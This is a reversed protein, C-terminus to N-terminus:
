EEDDVTALFSALKGKFKADNEALYFSQKDIAFEKDDLQVGDTITLTGDAFSFLSMRDSRIKKLREDLAKDNKREDKTFLDTTKAVLKAVLTLFLTPESEGRLMSRIDEVLHQEPEPNKTPYKNKSFLLFRKAKEKHM